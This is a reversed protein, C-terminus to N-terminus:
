VRNKRKMDNKGELM